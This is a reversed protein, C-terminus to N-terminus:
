VTFNNFLCLHDINVIGQSCLILVKKGMPNDEYLKVM